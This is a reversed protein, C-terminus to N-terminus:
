KKKTARKKYLYSWKPSKRGYLYEDHNTSLDHPASVKYKKAEEAIKLLFEACGGGSRRLSEDLKERVIDSVSRRNEEAEKKLIKLTKEPLYLQTRKM